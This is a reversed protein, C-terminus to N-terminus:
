KTYNYLWLISKFHVRIPWRTWSGSLSCRSRCSSWNSPVWDLRVKFTEPYPADVVDRLMNSMPCNHGDSATERAWASRVEGAAGFLLPRMNPMAKEPGAGQGACLDLLCWTLSNRAHHYSKLYPSSDELTPCFPGNWPFNLKGSLRSWCTHGHLETKSLFLSFTFHIQVHLHCM